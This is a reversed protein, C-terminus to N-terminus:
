SVARILEALADALGQVGPGAPGGPESMYQDRRIEIMLASVRAERGYHTLPVYTGGFPSDTGTGFDGFADRAQELLQRGTHFPDTGLCVEPRPGASHLEYPLPDTPYSHVDLLVARGAAALREEVAETMERAYPHFYADLLPAPDFGSARLREGHTTHTYVAGMGVARMEEREDPFREPDIVLRSQRALAQWPRIAAPVADAALAAIRDTHADTIHDLERELATDDLLIDRRVDAPLYRSSHPLHLLVPSDAAGPVLQLRVAPPEPM